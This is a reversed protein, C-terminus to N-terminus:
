ETKLIEELEKMVRARYLDMMERVMPTPVKVPTAMRVAAGYEDIIKTFADKIKRNRYVNVDRSREQSMCIGIVFGILMMLTLIGLMGLMNLDSLFECVNEIRWISTIIDGCGIVCPRSM